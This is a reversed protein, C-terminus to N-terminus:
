RWGSRGFNFSSDEYVEKRRTLARFGKPLIAHAVAARVYGLGPEIPPIDADVYGASKCLLLLDIDEPTSFQLPLTSRALFDLMRLPM